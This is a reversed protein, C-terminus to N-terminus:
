FQGGASIFPDGYLTMAFTRKPDLSTAKGVAVNGAHYADLVSAGARWASLFGQLWPRAINFPVPWAPAIVASCGRALVRRALGIGTGNEPNADIRGGSCVFLITVRARRSMEAVDSPDTPAHEDNTVSRFYRNLEALGGHAGVIAVDAEAFMRSPENATELPVELDALISSVDESLLSLPAEPAGGDAPIWMRAAGSGRRDLRRSTTLWELSPTLAIARELGAYNGDITLLNPPLRQLEAAAIVVTRAPLKSLGLEAVSQSVDEPGIKDERYGRPFTESWTELASESFVAPLELTMDSATGSAFEITALRGDFLAMGFLAIGNTSLAEAAHLPGDPRSLLRDTEVPAGEVDRVRLAHDASAEIAYAMTKADVDEVAQEVLAQTMLRLNLMDYGADEAFRSVDISAAVVAIDDLAPRPGTARVLARREEPLKTLLEEVAQGLDFAQELKRAAALKWLGTLLTAVPLLDDNQAKATKANELAHEILVILAEDKGDAQDFGTMAASLAITTLRYGEREAVGLADLAAWARDILPLALQSLGLSRMLRFLLSTEFWIEDWSVTASSGFAAGLVVLAENRMGLRAYIDAFSFLAQRRREPRDGASSLIHEALDRAVQGKGALAFKIAATRIIALDDDPHPSLPAIAMAAAIYLMITKEDTQDVARTGHHEVLRLLSPLIEEAPYPLLEAPYPTRGVILVGQQQENLWSWIQELAPRLDELDIGAPRDDIKARERITPNQGIRAMAAAILLAAGRNGAIQPSMLETLRVRVRGAEPHDALFDQGIALVKEFLTDRPTVEGAASAQEVLQILRVIQSASLAGRRSLIFDIADMRRSERVLARTIESIAENVAEPFADGLAKVADRAAWGSTGIVKAMLGYFAASRAESEPGEALLRAAEDYHGLRVAAGIAHRRLAESRPHLQTFALVVAEVLGSRRTKRAAELATEFDRESRISPLVRRILAEAQDDLDAEEAIRALHLARDIPADELREPNDQFLQRVSEQLGATSFAQLKAFFKQLESFGETGDIEQIVRGVEGAEAAEHWNAFRALIEEAPPGPADTGTVGVDGVSTLLNQNRSRSPLFAGLDAVVYINQTQCLKELAMLLQHAHASWVDEDIRPPPPLKAGLFRYRHADVIIVASRAPAQAVLAVLADGDFNVASVVEIRTLADAVHNDTAQGQSAHNLARKVSRALDVPANLQPPALIWTAKAKPTGQKDSRIAFYGAIEGARDLAQDEGVALVDAKGWSLGSRVCFEMLSNPEIELPGSQRTDSMSVEM